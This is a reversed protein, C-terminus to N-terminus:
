PAFVLKRARCPVRMVAGLATIYLFGDAGLECNTTFGGTVVVGIRKGEPTFANLGDRNGAWMHGAADIKLSDGNSFGQAQGDIFTRRDSARGQADLTWAYWGGQAACYLTRGDPSIGIGNPIVLTRDVLTVTGDPALRFVGTYDMERAASEMRGTLGYPPDTFYISGDRALVLDNPSNFRRGEFRSCLMTKRKTRMDVLAIGRNGSDAMLLGGRGLTLGNSGPTLLSASPPGAYGSPNLFESEGDRSSWRRILNKSVDSVLLYGDRGGVWLPGESTGLGTMIIEIKADPAILADFAPDLSRLSPQPRPPAAPQAWVSGTITSTALGAAVGSVVARRSFIRNM